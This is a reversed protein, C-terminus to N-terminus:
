KMLLSDDKDWGDKMHKQWSWKDIQIEVFWKFDNLQDCRNHISFHIRISIKIVKKKHETHLVGRYIEIM